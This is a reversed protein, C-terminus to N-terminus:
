AYYPRCGATAAATPSQFPHRVQDVPVGRVEIRKPDNTGVGVSALLRLPNEGQFPYQMPAAQPDYGQVAASVADTCVANRGVILLKPSIPKLNKLWPGEGGTVTEVAEVVALDVPRAGLCDATIRPVRFKWVPQGEPLQLNKEQPVGDPPRKQALHFVAVRASLSDENPADGGYLSQPAVGFLNKVAATMGTASHDKLKAVSIFVDTKEYRANVDFAPYVFGGWPVKLRAYAPWAGRNRTNEFAVRGDGASQIAQVDWGAAKLAEECPKRFYFSEAIVIHKAGAGALAGCVAAVVVPHTHYTRYAPLGCAPATGGTLNVKLTVTKGRVLDGLGGILGLAADLQRRVLAPEYSECRQIAVPSSPADASRDPLAPGPSPEGGLLPPGRGAALLGAAGLGGVLMQRRTFTLAM